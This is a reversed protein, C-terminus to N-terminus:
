QSSSKICDKPTMFYFIPNVLQYRNVEFAKPDYYVNIAGVGGCLRFQETLGLNLALSLGCYLFVQRHLIHM